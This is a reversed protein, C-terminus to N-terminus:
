RGAESGPDLLDRLGDGLLNVALVILVLLAAAFGFPWPYTTATSRGDAILTGLSVDPPRVGFGLYSLGSEAIVAVSVTLSADVVLLSALQPLIHRVITRPAGVGLFRAALVYERERLSITMARVVRATVMWLFAALLPVLVPWGGPVRSSLVALVLFSPLVLLLDVGWMLARDPWGGAFGAVTGVVAALGTSVLAVGLGILLSKQTGRLTLAFVDRGSQTTGFWHQSSPGQRFAAFDTEDWGWPSLLPGTFALAFLLVLLILGCM